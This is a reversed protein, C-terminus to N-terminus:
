PKKDGETARLPKSFPHEISYERKRGTKRLGWSGSCTCGAYPKGPHNEHFACTVHDSVVEYENDDRILM